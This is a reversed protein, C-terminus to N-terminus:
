KLLNNLYEIIFLRPTIYVKLFNSLDIFTIMMTYIYITILITRALFKDLIDLENGSMKNTQKYLKFFLINSLLLMIIGTSLYWITYYNIIEQILLPSQEKIFSESQKVYELILELSEKIKENM